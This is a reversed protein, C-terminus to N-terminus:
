NQLDENINVSAKIESKELFATIHSEGIFIRSGLQYFGLSGRERYRRVTMPSVQLIKATEKESFRQEAMKSQAQVM